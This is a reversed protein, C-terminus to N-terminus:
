HDESLVMEQNGRVLTDGPLGDPLWQRVSAAPVVACATGCVGRARLRKVDPAPVASVADQRVRDHLRAEVVHLHLLRSHCPAAKSRTVNRWVRRAGACRECMTAETQLM